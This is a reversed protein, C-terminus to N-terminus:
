LSMTPSQGDDVCRCYNELSTKSYTQMLLDRSFRPTYSVKMLVPQCSRIDKSATSTPPRSQLCAGPHGDQADYVLSCTAALSTWLFSSSLSTNRYIMCARM